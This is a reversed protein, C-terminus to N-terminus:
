RETYQRTSSRYLIEKQREAIPGPGRQHWRAKFLKNNLNIRQYWHSIGSGKNITKFKDDKQIRSIYGRRCTGQRLGDRELIEFLNKNKSVFM